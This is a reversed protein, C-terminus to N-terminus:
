IAYTRHKILEIDSRMEEIKQMMEKQIRIVEDLKKAMENSSAEQVAWLDTNLASGLIIYLSIMMFYRKM